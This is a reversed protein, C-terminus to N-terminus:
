PRVARARGNTILIQGSPTTTVNLPAAVSTTSTPMLLRATGQRATSTTLASTTNLTPSPVPATSVVNGANSASAMGTLANSAAIPSPTAGSSMTPTLTSLGNATVNTGTSATAPSLTAAATTGSTAATTGTTGATAGGPLVFASSAGSVGSGGGTIVPYPASSISSNVTIEPNASLSPPIFQGTQIQEATQQQAGPVPSLFGLTREQFELHQRMIAAARASRSMTNTSSVNTYSSTMPNNGYSTGPTTAPSMSPTATVPQGNGPTRNMTCGFVAMALIMSIPLVKRM